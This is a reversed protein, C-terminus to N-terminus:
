PRQGTQFMLLICKGLLAKTCNSLNSSFMNWAHDRILNCCWCFVSELYHLKLTLLMLLICKEILHKSCNSVDSFYMKGTLVKFLKYCWCFVSKFYMSQVIQLILPTWIELLTKSCNAVDSYYLKWAHDKFLKCCWFLINKLCPRQVTQMVDSSDKFLKYWCNWTLEKFCCWTKSCNADDSSYIKCANDKNLKCCWCLVSELYPRQVTQLILMLLICKGLLLKLSWVFVYILCPRKVSQLM